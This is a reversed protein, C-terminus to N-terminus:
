GEDLSDKKSVYGVIAERIDYLVNLLKDEVTIIRSSSIKGHFFICSHKYTYM